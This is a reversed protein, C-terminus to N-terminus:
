KKNRKAWNYFGTGCLFLLAVAVLDSMIKGSLGMITGAHIDLLLKELTIGKGRYEEAQEPPVDPPLDMNYIKMLWEADFYIEDFGWQLAHNLLIGTVAIVTIFFSLALGIRWHWRLWFVRNIKM